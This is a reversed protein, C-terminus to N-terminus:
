YEHASASLTVITMSSESYYSIVLLSRDFFQARQFVRSMAATGSAALCDNPCLLPAYWHRLMNSLSRIRHDTWLATPLIPTSDIKSWLLYAASLLPYNTYIQNCRYLIIRAHSESQRSPLYKNTRQFDGDFESLKMDLDSQRDIPRLTPTTNSWYLRCWLSVQCRTMKSNLCRIPIDLMPTHITDM